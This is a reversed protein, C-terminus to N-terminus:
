RGCISGLSIDLIEERATSRQIYAIGFGQQEDEKQQSPVLLDVVFETMM